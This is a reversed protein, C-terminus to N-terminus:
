DIESLLHLSWRHLPQTKDPVAKIVLNLCQKAGNSDKFGEWLVQAKLFLADPFDPDHSLVDDILNLAEKFRGNMKHHRVQQLDGELRERLTFTSKGRGYLLGSASGGAKDALLTTVTGTVVSLIVAALVGLLAGLVGGLAYGCFIGGVFLYPFPLMCSKLYHTRAASDVNKM